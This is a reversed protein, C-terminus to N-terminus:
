QGEAEVSVSFTFAGRRAFEIFRELTDLLLRGTERSTEDSGSRAHMMAALHPSGRAVSLANAWALADAATVHKRDLAGGPQYNRLAPAEVKSKAPLVYTTGTPNWGFTHGLESLLEWVSLPCSFRDSSKLDGADRSLEVTSAM